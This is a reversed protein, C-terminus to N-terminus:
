YTLSALLTQVQNTIDALAVKHVEGTRRVKMEVLGEKLGREGVTVQLPIGMLDADNFKVGAREERNDYLVDLGLAELDAEIKQAAAQTEVIAENVTIVEVDFPAIAQPWVIGKDDHHEEISAALIRNVGIGYCGMMATKREGKEDLFVADLQASYRTGLKFVHGIEMTTVIDLAGSGDEALDGAKVNRLDGVSVCQFDRRPDVHRFHKDKENAGTVLDCGCVVDWDAYIPVKLGVPGAFGVPAGTATRVEEGTAQRLEKVGLLRRFKVENLESDGTVLAAVAQGDAMYIMTKIMRSPAVKYKHSIEEITRLNPTDFAEVAAPEPAGSVLEAPQARKAIEVSALKGSKSITVRDEGYPCVVMFEQSMKGGMMGPDAEVVKFSLGCRSFIRHYAESMKKYNVDLGAEDADFSYADKMIFEKTRIVGFRPRAEDRFKTQIQYLTQPLDRFSKLYASALETVVEEHTPGLVFEYGARNEFAFKDAGLTEYRGTRKWLEAPQLAPMLIEQAGARNMEERVIKIVKSLVRFGLPLYTYVGSSLQRILGARLALKHSAAEADKPLNRLTPILLNTWRM